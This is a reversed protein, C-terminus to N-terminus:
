GEGTWCVYVDCIAKEESDRTTKVVRNNHGAFRIEPYARRLDPLNGAPEDYAAYWKWPQGRLREAIAAWDRSPARGRKGANNPPSAVEVLGEIMPEM